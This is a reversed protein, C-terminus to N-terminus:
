GKKPDKIHLKEKRDKIADVTRKHNSAIHNNSLRNQVEGRLQRNELQTWHKGANAPKNQMSKIMAGFLSLLSVPIPNPHTM